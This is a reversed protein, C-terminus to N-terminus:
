LIGQSQAAFMNYVVQRFLEPYRMAAVRGLQYHHRHIYVLSAYSLTTRQLTFFLIFLQYKSFVFFSKPSVLDHELLAFHLRVYM